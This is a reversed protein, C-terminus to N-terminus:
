PGHADISFVVRKRRDGLVRRAVDVALAERQDKSSKCTNGCAIIAAKFEVGSAALHGCQASLRALLIDLPEDATESLVVVGDRYPLKAFEQEPWKAGPEIVVVCGYSPRTSRKKETARNM